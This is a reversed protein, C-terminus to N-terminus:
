LKSVFVGRKWGFEICYNMVKADIISFIFLVWVCYINLHTIQLVIMGWIYVCFGAFVGM